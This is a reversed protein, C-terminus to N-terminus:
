DVDRERPVVQPAKGPSEASNLMEIWTGRALSSVGGGQIHKTGDLKLGRGERSPRGPFKENKHRNNTLKLGRGERSPRSQRQRYIQCLLFKLGRGERSPRRNEQFAGAQQSRIEIWTGRALSSKERTQPPCASSIEIWTGRALSSWHCLDGTTSCPIEIWTGRALSSPAEEAATLAQWFKM